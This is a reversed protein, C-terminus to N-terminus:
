QGGNKAVPSQQSLWASVAEIDEKTMRKAISLMLQEPDNKRKDSQWNYIQTAIYDAQQGALAPFSEGVGLSGPGHCSECPPMERSWDGRTVLKEGLAVVAEDAQVGDIDPAPLSAYYASVAQMKEEDLLTVFPMMTTSTRTGEKFALLQNYLYTQNLGALRPWSEAGPNDKGSGNEMHCAVCLKATEKGLELNADANAATIVGMGFLMAFPIQWSLLRM